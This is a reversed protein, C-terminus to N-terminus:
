FPTLDILEPFSVKLRQLDADKVLTEVSVGHIRSAIMLSSKEVKEIPNINDEIVTGMLDNEFCHSVAVIVHLESCTIPLTGSRTIADLLDFAKKKETDTDSTSLPRSTPPTLLNKQRKLVWPSQAKVVTAHLANDTDFKEFTADLLNPVLTFDNMCSADDASTMEGQALVENQPADEVFSTKKAPVKEASGQKLRQRAGSAVMNVNPAGCM